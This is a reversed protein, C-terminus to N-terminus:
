LGSGCIDFDNDHFIRHGIVYLIKRTSPIGTSAAAQADCTGLRSLSPAAARPHLSSATMKGTFWAAQAVASDAAALLGPQLAFDHWM